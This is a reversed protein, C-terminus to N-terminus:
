ASRTYFPPQEPPRALFALQLGQDLRLRLAPDAALAPGLRAALAQLAAPDTAPGALVLALTADADPAPALHAASVAPEAALLDRLAQQVEPDRHPPLYRRNEAVARLRAGSLQYAVPGAPDVLLTDAREGFAVMAAQPAAVPAPRADARWRAMTALSTFAPLARRGDPAEVVPVAMDSTKEHRHGNADVEVEGLLAVIPVMLRSPTLAALLEPEAAPDQQWAALAAVLVPDATGDDEAFGPNPINKREM